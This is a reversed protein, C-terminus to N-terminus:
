KTGNSLSKFPVFLSTRLKIEVDSVLSNMFLDLQQVEKDGKIYLLYIMDIMANLQVLPMCREGAMTSSIELSILFLFIPKFM